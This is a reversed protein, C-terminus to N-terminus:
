AGVQCTEKSFEKEKHSTNSPVVHIEHTAHTQLLKKDDWSNIEDETVCIYDLAEFPGEEHHHGSLHIMAHFEDMMMMSSSSSNGFSRQKTEQCVTAEWLTVTDKTIKESNELSLKPKFVAHDVPDEWASGSDKPLISQLDVVSQISSLHDIDWRSEEEM